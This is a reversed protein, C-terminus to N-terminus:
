KDGKIDSTCHACKVAEIPIESICYPCKKTTAKKVEVEEVVNKRNIKGLYKVVLFLIFSIIFFNLLANLLAGYNWVLAGAEQAKELSDYHVGSLSIFLKSFDVKNTFISLLPTITTNVLANIISTFASGIVMGIALDVINGKMAFKKYEDMTKQVNKKTEKTKEKLKENVKENIKKTNKSM